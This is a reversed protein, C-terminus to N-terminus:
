LGRNKVDEYTAYRWSVEETEDDFEELELITVESAQSRGYGGQTVSSCRYREGGTLKKM